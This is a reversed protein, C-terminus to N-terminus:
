LRVESGALTEPSLGMGRVLPDKKGLGRVKELPRFVVEVGPGLRALYAGRVASEVAGTDAGARYQLRVEIHTPDTQHM